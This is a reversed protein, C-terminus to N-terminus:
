GLFQEFKMLASVPPFISWSTSIPPNWLLFLSYIRSLPTLFLQLLREFKVSVSSLTWWLLWRRSPLCPLVCHFLDFSLTYILYPYHSLPWESCISFISSTWWLRWWSFLVKSSSLRLFYSVTQFPFNLSAEFLCSMLSYRLSCIISSASCCCPQPLFFRTTSSYRSNQHLHFILLSLVDAKKQFALFTSPWYCHLTTLLKRKKHTYSSVNSPLSFFQLHPYM